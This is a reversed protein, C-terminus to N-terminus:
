DDDSHTPEDMEGLKQIADDLWQLWSRQIVIGYDSTMMMLDLDRVGGLSQNQAKLMQHIAELHAIAQVVSDRYAQLVTIMEANSVLSGFFLQGLWGERVPSQKEAIPTTIWRVLEDHGAQTVHYLKKDPNDEQVVYEMRIWGKEELKYLTRYIQSQDTSWFNQVTRQFTKNLDYGSQTQRDLLGLILHPLSM